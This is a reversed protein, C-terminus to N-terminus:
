CGCYNEKLNTIKELFNGPIDLWHKKVGCEWCTFTPNLRKLKFSYKIENIAKAIEVDKVSPFETFIYTEIIYDDIDTRYIIQACFRDAYRYIETDNPYDAVKEIETEPLNESVIEQISKWGENCGLFHLNNKVTQLYKETRNM